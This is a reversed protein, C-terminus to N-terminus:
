LIKNNMTMKSNQSVLVAGGYDNSVCGQISGNGLEFQSSEGLNIGGGLNAYCGIINGSDLNCSSYYNIYIGRSDDSHTFTTIIGGKVKHPSSTNESEDWVWLGPVSTSEKFYHEKNPNSDIIKLKTMNTSSNNRVEIVSNNSTQVLVNGNLDLTVEKGNTIVIPGNLKVNESLYYNAETLANDIGTFNAKNSDNIEIGKPEIANIPNILLFSLGISISLLTSIIRKTKM